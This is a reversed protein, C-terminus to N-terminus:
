PRNSSELDVNTFSQPKEIFDVAESVKTVLSKFDDGMKDIEDEGWRQIHAIMIEKATNIIMEKDKNYMVKEKRLSSIYVKSRVEKVVNKLIDSLSNQPLAMKTWRTPLAPPFFAIFPGKVTVSRAFSNRIL